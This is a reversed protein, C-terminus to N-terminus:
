GSKLDRVSNEEHCMCLAFYPLVLSSWVGDATTPIDDKPPLTRSGLIWSGFTAPLVAAKCGGSFTRTFPAVLKTQVNM